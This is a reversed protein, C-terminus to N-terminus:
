DEYHPLEEKIRKYSNTENIIDMISHAIFNIEDQTTARIYIRYLLGFIIEANDISHFVLVEEMMQSSVEGSFCNKIMECTDEYESIYYAEYENEDNEYCCKDDFVIVSAYFALEEFTVNPKGSLDSFIDEVVDFRQGYMPSLLFKCVEILSHKDNNLAKDFNSIFDKVENGEWDYFTSCLMKVMPVAMKNGKLAASIYFGVGKYYNETPNGGILRQKSIFLQGLKYLALYALKGYIAVKYYAIANDFEQEVIQFNNTKVDYYYNGLYYAAECVLNNDEDDSNNYIELFLNYADLLSQDENTEFLKVAKKYISFFKNKEYNDDELDKYQINLGDFLTKLKMYESYKCYRVDDKRLFQIKNNAEHSFYTKIFFPAAGDLSFSFSELCESSQLDRPRKGSYLAEAHTAEWMENTFIIAKCKEKYINNIFNIITEMEDEFQEDNEFQLMSSLYYGEYVLNITSLFQGSFSLITEATKHITKTLDIISSTDGDFKTFNTM